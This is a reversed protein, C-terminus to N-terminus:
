RHAYAPKFLMLCYVAGNPWGHWAARTWWGALPPPHGDHLINRQGGSCASRLSSNDTDGAHPRRGCRPRQCLYASSAVFPPLWSQVYMHRHLDVLNDGPWRESAPRHQSSDTQLCAAQERIPRKFISKLAGKGCVAIDRVHEDVQALTASAQEVM